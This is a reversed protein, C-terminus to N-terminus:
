RRSGRCFGYSCNKDRYGHLFFLFGLINPSKIKPLQQEQRAPPLGSFYSPINLFFDM